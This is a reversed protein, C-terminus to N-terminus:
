GMAEKIKEETDSKPKEKEQLLERIDLLIETQLRQFTLLPNDPDYNLLEYRDKIEKRSRM